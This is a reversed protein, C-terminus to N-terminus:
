KVEKMEMKCLPCAGKADYTKEGECKMPCQYKVAAVNTGGTPSTPAVVAVSDNTSKPGATGCSTLFAIAILASLITKKM